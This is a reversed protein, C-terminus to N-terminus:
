AVDEFGQGDCVSAGPGQERFGYEFKFDEVEDPTFGLRSM